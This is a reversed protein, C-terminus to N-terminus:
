PLEEHADLARNPLPGRARAENVANLTPLGGQAGRGGVSFSAVESAFLTAGLRSEGSAIAVAYGAVFADGAGTTDAVPVARAPVHSVGTQDVALAGRRGLTVVVFPRAPLLAADLSAMLASATRPDAEVLARCEEENVILTDVEAILESPLPRYPALNLVVRTRSGRFLRAAAQPEFEVHGVLVDPAPDLATTFARGDFRGAAGLVTIILNEGGDDLAIVSLGTPRDPDLELHTDPIDERALTERLFAGGSDNGVRGGLMVDAGLRRAGVAYNMAKGGPGRESSDGSVTEGPRPLRPVRVTEDVTLTGFVAVRPPM